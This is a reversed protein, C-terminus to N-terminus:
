DMERDLLQGNTRNFKLKLKRGAKDYGKVEVILGKVKMKTVQTVGQKQALHQIDTLSLRKGTDAAAAPKGPTVAAPAAAQPAPTPRVPEDDYHTYLEKGTSRDFGVEVERGSSDYGEAELLLGRVETETVTIGKAALRKHVEDLTLKNGSAHSLTTAAGAPAAAQAFTPQALTALGFVLVGIALAARNRSLAPCSIPFSTAFM